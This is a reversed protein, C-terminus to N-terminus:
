VDHDAELEKIYAILSPINQGLTYWDAAPVWKANKKFFKYNAEIDEIDPRDM